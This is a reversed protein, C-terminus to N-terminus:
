YYSAPPCSRFGSAKISLPFFSTPTLPRSQAARAMQYTNVLVGGLAAIMLLECEPHTSPFCTESTRWRSCTTMVNRPKELIASLKIRPLMLFTKASKHRTSDCILRLCIGWPFPFSCLGNRCFWIM